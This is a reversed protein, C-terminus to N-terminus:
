KKNRSPILRKVLNVSSREANDREEARWTRPHMLIVATLLELRGFWMLISTIILAGFNMESWTNTPGFEGLAPGTNGLSSAVISVISEFSQSPMIIALILTSIAFLGIWVFLMGVILGLQQREVVKGNMRIRDIRRPQAIRVLERMAVKFALTVRMLKLGGGTSGASAGIIMLMFIIVHTAVPWPIYDASGYGTSTAISVVQFLSDRLAETTTYDGSIVLAVFVFFLAILIYFVYYRLEEDALAKKFQGDRLMWLLTFNVGALFMFLIIILEIVVSDFHGISADHTSFGGTPLTTLAHNIADFTSMQGIFKLMLMEAITLFVYLGWLALATQKIKPRLRSLSTGTLEARALAMGGGMVRSILMMGLMIIGMGGFWQILSRWLLLGRPQANICDMPGPICNPSMNHSIVTAGTTTFGSMSEFWSNVAGRFIDEWLAGETFPGVFMGGLWFPLCGIFVALPWVLAVAAFAEKDRLRESTNTRTWLTLMTIGLLLSFLSPIAFSILALEISDLFATAIGSAALPLSLAILTWGLIMSLVDTRM